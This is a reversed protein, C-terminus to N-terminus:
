FYPEAICLQKPIEMGPKSETHDYLLFGGQLNPFSIFYQSTLEKLSTSELTIKAKYTHTNAIQVHM